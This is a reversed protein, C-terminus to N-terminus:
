AKVVNVSTKEPAHTNTVDFGHVDSIYEEVADETVSYVIETGHDRYKPLNEFSWCWSEAETVTVTDIVVGDALLNITISEPRFGDQNNHDKWTKAGEVKILEPNHSNTITYGGLQDGTIVTEYGAVTLERVSYVIETGAQYKDLGSFTGVWFNGEILVLKM